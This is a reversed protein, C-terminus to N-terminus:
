RSLRSWGAPLTACSCPRWRGRLGALVVATLLFPAAHRVGRGAQGHHARQHRHRGHGRRLRRHGPRARRRSGPAHRVARRRRVRHRRHGPLVRRRAAGALSGHGALGLFLVPVITAFSVLPFMIRGGFRDTLAGVPIRGLSGVVVPVAVLLAQQFPSLQLADKLQAGLPSLLAWAWFNVSFGVTAIALMLWSRTGATRGQRRAKIRCSRHRQQSM